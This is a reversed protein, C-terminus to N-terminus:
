RVIEARVFGALHRPVLGDAIGEFYTVVDDHVAAEDLGFELAWAEVDVTFRVSVSVTPFTVSAERAAERAAATQQAAALHFTSSGQCRECSVTMLDGDPRVIATHDISIGCV